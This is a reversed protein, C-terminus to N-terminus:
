NRTSNDVMLVGTAPEITQLFWSYAPWETYGPAETTSTGDPLALMCDLTGGTRLFSSDRGQLCRCTQVWCRWQRSTM